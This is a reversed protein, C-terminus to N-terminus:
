CQIFSSLDDIESAKLQDSLNGHSPFQEELIEAFKKEAKSERPVNSAGSGLLLRMSLAVLISLSHWRRGNLLRCSSSTSTILISYEYRMLDLLKQAVQDM